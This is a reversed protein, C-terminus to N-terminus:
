QVAITASDSAGASTVVIPVDSGPAVGAPIQVDIQYLGNYGPAVGSFVVPATQGGITVTPTALTEYLPNGSAPAIATAALVAASANGGPTAAGLGTAYIQLYSGAKAPQGCLSAATPCTTPLGLNAAMSSPMAIWGTNATVAVANHRTLVLPDTYYFMGPTATAVTVTLPASTGGATQVTLDVNGSSPLDMPVLVNIQGGTAALAFLPAPTTGFLVSLGDVTTSPFAFLNNSSGFGAGFVSVISGPSVINRSSFNAANVVSGVLPGSGVPIGVSNSPVGDVTVVVPDIGIPASQPVTFYVTESGEGTNVQIQDIHATQGGITLTPTATPAVDPGLGTVSVQLIEGLAAPATPTVQTQSSNHYIPYYPNFAPPATSSSITVGVGSLQPVPVGITIPIANSTQGLYTVTLSTAGAPTGAPITASIFDAGDAVNIGGSQGGVTISYDRGASHPTFTGLIYIETGPGIKTVGPIDTTFSTIVPAQAWTVPAAFVALLLIKRM